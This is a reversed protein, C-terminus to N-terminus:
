RQSAQPPGPLPGVSRSRLLSPPWVQFKRRVGSISVTVGTPGLSAHAVVEAAEKTPRGCGSQCVVSPPWTHFAIQGRRAEPVGMGKVRRQDAM